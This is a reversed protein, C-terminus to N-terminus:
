LPKVTITLVFSTWLGVRNPVTCQLHFREGDPNTKATASVSPGTGAENEASVSCKYPVDEELSLFTFHDGVRVHTSRTDSVTNSLSTCTTHYGTIEGNTFEPTSWTLQISTSSLAKAKFSLPSTPVPCLFSFKIILM